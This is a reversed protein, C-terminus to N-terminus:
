LPAAPLDNLQQVMGAITAVAPAAKAKRTKTAKAPALTYGAAALIGVLEMKMAADTLATNLTAIFSPTLGTKPTANVEAKRGQGAAKASGEAERVGKAAAVIAHKSIGAKVADAAKMMVPSAGNKGAPTFEVTMEPNCLLLLASRFLTKVNADLGDFVKKHAKAVENVKDNSLKATSAKLEPAAAQAAEFVKAKMTAGAKDAELLLKNVLKFEATEPAAIVPAKKAPAAKNAKAAKLAAAKSVSPTKITNKM